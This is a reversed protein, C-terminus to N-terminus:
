KSTGVKSGGWKQMASEGFMMGANLHQTLAAAWPSISSAAVRVAKAQGQASVAQKRYGWSNAIANAMIQNRNMEKSIDVSALVEAASGAGAVRIGSAGQSARIAGKTQGAQFSVQASEQHGARVTDEAATQYSQALMDYLEAQMNLISKQRRAKAYALIAGVSGQEGAYGMKMGMQFDSFSQQSMVSQGAKKSAGATTQGDNQLDINLLRGM